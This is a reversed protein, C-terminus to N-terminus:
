RHQGHRTPRVSQQIPDWQVFRAGVGDEPWDIYFEFDSTSGEFENILHLISYQGRVPASTNVGMEWDITPLYVPDEQDYLQTWGGGDTTMDCYVTLPSGNVEIPYSGDM